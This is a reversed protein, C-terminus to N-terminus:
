VVAVICYYTNAQFELACNAGETGLITNWSYFQATTIDHAVAFGSCTDGSVAEAYQDCNSAIGSQVPSPVSVPSSSPVGVCYWTDAQFETSCGAGDTGLIPNWAYLQAPTINNATAFESCYDGSVAEAYATCDPDIGTQAPSPVALTTTPSSTSTTSAITSATTSPSTSAAGICYYTNEQFQLSCNQGNAGLVPNWEYLEATTINYETAFASCYDGSQAEAYATCQPDIGPQVPSPTAAPPTTTATSPASSSTTAGQVGICYWDGALLATSCNEGATGLVPNWAYFDSESIQWLTTLSWCGDGSQAQAYETCLPTIGSQTPTPPSEGASVFTANRGGGAVSGSGTATGTGDGGGRAQSSDSSTENSAPPSIYSGGPASICVYQDAALDDCFGLLNPNWTQFQTSTISNNATSILSSMSDCTANLPVQAMTCGAPVCASTFNVDPLCFANGFELILDGTTVNYLTSIADCWITGNASPDPVTLNGLEALGLTQNCAVTATTTTQNTTDTANSSIDLTSDYYPPPRVLLDPMDTNNCVSVIDYFQGVLYDSYDLDPLYPSAVRLYFMKIFCDSCLLSDPYLNALRENEPPVDTPDVCQSTDNGTTAAGDPCLPRIIDSGVWSYSEILCYSPSAQRKRSSVTGQTSPTPTPVTSDATVTSNTESLLVSTLLTGNVGPDMLVDTDPSLCAINMGDLVRGPITMPPILRGNVAIADNACETRVDAFWTAASSLCDTTCLATVNDIDWLYNDVDGAMQLLTGDCVVTENLADLCALSINFANALATPDVAPYLSSQATCEAALLLATTLLVIHQM